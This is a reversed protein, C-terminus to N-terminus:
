FDNTEAEVNEGVVSNLNDMDIIYELAKELLLKECKIHPQIPAWINFVLRRTAPITSTTDHLLSM